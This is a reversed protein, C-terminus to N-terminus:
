RFYPRSALPSFPWPISILIILVALSFYNAILKFKKRDTQERKAKASGVSIFVIAVIMLLMHALGFFISNSTNSSTAFNAWFSKVIPSNFYLVVGILLQIHAITATGHRVLNDIRSFPLNSVVGWYSRLIAYILSFLVFWRAYSHINILTEYMYKDKFLDFIFLFM